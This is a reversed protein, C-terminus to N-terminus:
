VGKTFLRQPFDILKECGTETVLFPESCEFGYTDLWIGPMFHICMGPRLVSKDGPRLSVTHEGWDPVFALGFSYGVRSPKEVGSGVLCSRWYEEVEEASCGPKIFDLTRQLGSVVTGSVRKLDDPAKGLYVTRSLPAHYHHRAAGLELLVVDGKQYEREPHFTLHASSTREESPIIPFIASSDGGYTGTGEIQAASVAAAVKREPVGVAIMETALKMAGETIRAAERICAIEPESKVTKVWAILSTADLLRAHPLQEQLERDMRATFWYNDMECGMCRREWGQARILDAVFRMTHTYRSQVFHDPYGAISEESLWTTIRAANSDQQRGFWLPEERDLSILLGQHVYFSWGDFGTLYNMNAPDVTLLLEIGQRDMSEKVLRLRRKYEEVSFHLMKKLM